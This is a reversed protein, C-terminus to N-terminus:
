EKGNNIRIVDRIMDLTDGSLLADPITRLVRWGLVTATNYKEMDALFGKASNHRGGITTVLDGDGDIYRRKKFAGGEVELAIKYDPIAYDFRWRRTPCFQLEKVCDLGLESKVLSTFLDAEPFPDRREKRPRPSRPTKKAKSGLYALRFAEASIIDKGM